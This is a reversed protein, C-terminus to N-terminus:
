SLDEIFPLIEAPVLHSVDAKNLILERVISSSIHSQAPAPTIYITEINEDIMKNNQAIAMEYEFDASNRIGRLIVKANNEKAAIVTLGNYNVIRVREYSSFVKKLMEIRKETSFLYQKSTNVGIGIVIKEFIKLSRIILHLHGLTPPDFSGAFFATTM